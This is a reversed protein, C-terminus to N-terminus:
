ETLPDLGLESLEIFRLRSDAELMGWAENDLREGVLIGLPKRRAPLEQEVSARYSLLQAVAERGALGRKLEVVVYRKAIGAEAYILDARGGNRCRHQRKHLELSLGHPGFSTPDDALRDEIHREGSYRRAVNRRRRELRPRDESLRDLLPNWIDPPVAYVSRQLAKLVGWDGLTPDGKMQALSLPEQFKEVVEYDCGYTWGRETAHEDDRLSYAPSRTEILYAIDSKPATRYLLVLDGEETDKHCTWWGGPEYGLGPDLDSRDNGDEDLYYEPRTVWVWHGRTTPSTM